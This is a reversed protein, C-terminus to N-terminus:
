IAACSEAPQQAGDDGQNSMQTIKMNEGKYTVKPHANHTHLIQNVEVNSYIGPLSVACQLPKVHPIFGEGRTPWHM